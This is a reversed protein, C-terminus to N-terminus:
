AASGASATRLSLVFANGASRREYHLGAGHRGCLEACLHLGLGSGRSRTSFFPEFLRAQVNDSLPEGPSTVVVWVTAESPKASVVIDGPSGHLVANDLLNVWVRRLHDPDFWVSCEPDLSGWDPPCVRAAEQPNAITWEALTQQLLPVWRVRSSTAPTRAVELIDDVLRDLRDTNQRVMALLRQQPPSDLDEALLASAHAIAALPNRIEHAVGATLRGMVALKEQQLRAELERVDELFLVHLGVSADPKATSGADARRWRVRLHQTTQEGPSGQLLHALAATSTRAALLFPPTLSADGLLRRAAPNVSQVVGADDVVMVGNDMQEIVLRSVEVQRRAVAQSDRALAEQRELRSALENALLAVGFLASALVGAQPLAPTVGGERLLAFSADALLMFTMASAVFLSFLRTGLISAMLTPLVFLPLYNLVGQSMLYLAGFVAVDVAVTAAWLGMVQLTSRHRDLAGALWAWAATTALCYGASVVVLVGSSEKGVAWYAAHALVLAMALGTRAALFGRWIRVFSAQASRIAFARRYAPLSTIALPWGTRHPNTISGSVLGPTAPPVVVGM